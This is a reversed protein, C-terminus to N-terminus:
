RVKISFVVWDIRVEWPFRLVIGAPQYLIRAKIERTSPHIFRSPNQLITAETLSDSTPLIRTDITEYESTSPNYLQLIQRVNPTDCASEVTVRLEDTTALPLTAQLLIQIPPDTSFLVFGPHIRLYDDDSDWLSQLDGAVLRGRILQFASPVNPDLIPRIRYVKGHSYSVVYLYGDPGIRMDTVIGWNSGVAYQNREEPTDAVGDECGPLLLIGDRTANPIFLYLQQTNVDGVLINNREAPHFKRSRCFLISTPAIPDLWSFVPDRYFAGPLYILDSANYPRYSNKNYIADRYDPGMIKKWGGNFGFDIVNIEDYVEPGNETIWLRGTIPDFDMGFGNRIGYAIYTQIRPDPHTLFPNDPPLSGDLNLRHIGGVGAVLTKSGNQEITRQNPDWLVGRGMDGTFIYLKRDPGIRIYGGNHYPENNQNAEPGFVIITSEYELTGGTWRFREVRNDLWAGGDTQARSYYLYIFPNTPFDPHKCMGLLGREVQANVPLDLVIGQFQGNRYHRVRGSRRECLLLEDNSLFEITVPERGAADSIVTEVFYGPLSLSQPFAHFPIIALLSLAGRGLHIASLPACKSM